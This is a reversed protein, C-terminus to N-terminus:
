MLLETTGCAQNHTMTFKMMFLYYYCVFSDHIDVRTEYWPCPQPAVNERQSVFFFLIWETNSNFNESKQICPFQINDAYLSRM